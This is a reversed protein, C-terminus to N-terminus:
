LSPTPVTESKEHRVQANAQIAEHSRLVIWGDVMKVEMPLIGAKGTLDIGPIEIAPLQDALWAGADDIFDPVQGDSKAVLATQFWLETDRPELNEVPCIKALTSDDGAGFSINICKSSTSFKVTSGVIKPLLLAMMPRSEIRENLKSIQGDIVRDVDALVRRETDRNAIREASSNYERAKRTAVRSVIRGRLGPLTSTAGQPYIQTTSTITAPTTTFEDGDFRVIKRASWTTVSRSHIIAPGNTGVTRATTTGSIKVNFAADDSDPKTDVDARGVTHAMGRARTGFVVRSVPSQKDIDRAFLEELYKESVRLIMVGSLKEAVEELPTDDKDSQAAAGDPSSIEHSQVQAFILGNPTFLLLLAILTSRWMMNGELILECANCQQFQRFGSRLIHALVQIFHQKGGKGKGHRM